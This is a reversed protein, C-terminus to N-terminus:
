KSKSKAYIYIASSIDVYVRIFLFLIPLIILMAFIGWDDIWIQYSVFLDTFNNYLKILWALWRM